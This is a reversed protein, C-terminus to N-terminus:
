QIALTLSASASASAAGNGDVGAAIAVAAAGSWQANVPLNTLACYTRDPKVSFALVGVASGEGHVQWSGEASLSGEISATSFPLQVGVNGQILTTSESSNFQASAQIATSDLTAKAKGRSSASGTCTGGATSSCGQRASCSVGITVSGGGSASLLCLRPCAPLTGLWRENFGAAFNAFATDTRTGAHWFTSQGHLAITASAESPAASRCRTWRWTVFQENIRGFTEQVSSPNVIPSRPHRVWEGPGCQCLQGVPDETERQPKDCLWELSPCPPATPVTQLPEAACPLVFAGISLMGVGVVRATRMGLARLPMGARASLPRWPPTSRVDRVRSLHFFLHVSLDASQNFSM